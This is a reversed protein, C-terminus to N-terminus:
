GTEDIRISQTEYPVKDGPPDAYHLGPRLSVDKIFVSGEDSVAYRDRYFKIHAYHEDREARYHIAVEQWEGPKSTGQRGGFHNRLGARSSDRTSVLMSVFSGHRETRLWAGFTYTKGPTVPIMHSGYQPRCTEEYPGLRVEVALSEADCVFVFKTDRPLVFPQGSACGFAVMVLLIAISRM